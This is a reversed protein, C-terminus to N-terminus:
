YPCKKFVRHLLMQFDASVGLLCVKVERISMIKKHLPRFKNNSSFVVGIENVVGWCSRAHHPAARRDYVGGGGWM